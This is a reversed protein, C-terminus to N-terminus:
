LPLKLTMMILAAVPTLLALLGWMEWQLYIKKFLMCDFDNSSEQDRVLTFIKKQLPAVKWAFAIGSVSFLILSWLIWGTRLLPIGGQIAALIGFTTIFIVGPITFLRDSKIVGKITHGIIKLDNTKVAIRMWFLGTFINGLFIIVATVHLLKILSYEM